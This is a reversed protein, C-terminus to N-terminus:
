PIIEGNTGVIIKKYNGQSDIGCIVNRKPIYNLSQSVDTEHLGVTREDGNTDEATILREEQQGVDEPM